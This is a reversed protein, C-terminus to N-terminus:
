AFAAAILRALDAHVSARVDNGANGGDIFSAILVPKRGPPWAIALDNNAGRRGTGTKHGARWEAPLGARLRDAGPKSDILWQALRSRSASSLAPGTLLTRMTELMAAPTTSDRPDGPRNENLALEFRDLRTARDGISRLYNTFAAPGGVKRLILNAATNDSREVIAQALSQVPLRGRHLAAQSVPSNVLLDRRGFSLEEELSLRGREALHLVFGALALKFSSAMAFRGQENTGFRKGSGLDLAALGIRGGPGLRQRISGISSRRAQPLAPAATAALASVIFTRRDIM